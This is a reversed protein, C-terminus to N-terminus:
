SALRGSGPGGPSPVDGRNGSAPSPLPGDELDRGARPAGGLSRRAGDPAPPSPLTSRVRARARAHSPTASIRPGRPGGHAGTPGRPGIWLRLRPPRPRRERTTCRLAPPPPPPRRRRRRRAEAPLRRLRFRVAAATRPAAPDASEPAPGGRVRVSPAFRTRTLTSKHRPTHKHTHGRACVNTHTRAHTRTRARPCKHTCTRAHRRTRASAHTRAHTRTRAHMNALARIRRHTISPTNTHKPPFHPYILPSLPSILSKFLRKEALTEDM